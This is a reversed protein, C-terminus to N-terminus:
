MSTRAVMHGTHHISPLIRARKNHPTKRRTRDAWTCLQHRTYLERSVSTVSRHHCVKNGAELGPKTRIGTISMPPDLVQWWPFRPMATCDPHAFLRPSRQPHLRVNGQGYRGLAEQREGHPYTSTYYQDHHGSRTSQTQDMLNSQRRGDRWTHCLSVFM